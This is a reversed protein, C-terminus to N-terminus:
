GHARGAFALALDRRALGRPAKDSLIAIRDGGDDFGFVRGNCTEAM